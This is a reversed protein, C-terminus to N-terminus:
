AKATQFSTTGESDACEPPLIDVAMGGSKQYFPSVILNRGNYRIVLAERFRFNKQEHLDLRLDDLAPCGHFPWVEEFVKAKDEEPLDYVQEDPGFAMELPKLPYPLPKTEKVIACLIDKEPQSMERNCSRRNEKEAPLKTKMTSQSNTTTTVAITTM